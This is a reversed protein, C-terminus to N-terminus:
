RPEGSNRQTEEVVAENGRKMEENVTAAKVAESRASALEAEVRSQEGLREAIVMKEEKVAENASALKTRSEALEAAAYRGADAKEATSIAQEAAQLTATPPPTSACSAVLLLAGTLCTTILLHPPARASENM